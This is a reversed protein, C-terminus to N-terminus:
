FGLVALSIPPLRLAWLPPILFQCRLVLPKQPEPPQTFHAPPVQPRCKPCDCGWGWGATDRSSRGHAQSTHLIRFMHGSHSTGADPLGQSTEGAVAPCDPTQGGRAPSPSHCQPATRLLFVHGQGKLFKHSHFLGSPSGGGFGLWWGVGTVGWHTPISATPLPQPRSVQPAPSVPLQPTVPQLPCPSFASQPCHSPCGASSCFFPPVALSHPLAPLKPPPLSILTPFQGLFCFKEM